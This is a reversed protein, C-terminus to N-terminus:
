ELPPIPINETTDMGRQDGESTRDYSEIRLVTAVEAFTRLIRFGVEGGNQSVQVQLSSGAVIRGQADYMAAPIQGPHDQWVIRFLLTEEGAPGRALLVLVASSNSRETKNRRVTVELAEGDDSWRVVVERIDARHGPPADAIHEGADNVLSVDDPPDPFIGGPPLPTPTSTPASTATPAAPRAETPTPTDTAASDEEVEDEEPAPSSCAAVALLGFLVSAAALLRWTATGRGVTATGAPIPAM